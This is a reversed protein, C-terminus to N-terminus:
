GTMRHIFDLTPKDYSRIKSNALPCKGDTKCYAWKTMALDSDTQYACWPKFKDDPDLTCLDYIKGEFTFPFKCPGHEDKTECKKCSGKCYDWHTMEGKRNKQFACWSDYGGEITCSNFQKGSYIFPFICTHGKVTRICEKSAIIPLMISAMLMLNTAFTFGWM